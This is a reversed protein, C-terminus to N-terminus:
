EEAIRLLEKLRSEEILYKKGCFHCVAEVSQGESILKEIEEKGLAIIATEFREQSCDCEYRLDVRELINLGMGGLIHNLIDEPLYGNRLLETVSSINRLAEELKAVIKEEINPLLEIIFGGSALVNGEKGVLVGVGVASPVQESAYFYYAIDEGIKGTQLEVTGIYPEKLGIDKIVTVYGNKGVAKGVDLKGKESLPLDVKPNGVYGKVIGPYNSVAIINGIPGDGKIVLTVKDKEGKMMVRMMAVATLTRGLAACTTPTLDHIEKAKQVTQTSFATIALIKNNYATARVIYDSM